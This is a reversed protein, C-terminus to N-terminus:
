VFIAFKEYAEKYMYLGFGKFKEFNPEIRNSANYKCYKIVIDLANNDIKGLYPKYIYFENGTAVGLIIVSDSKDFNNYLKYKAIILSKDEKYCEILKINKIKSQNKNKIGVIYVM